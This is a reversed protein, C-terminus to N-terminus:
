WARWRERSIFLGHRGTTRCTVGPRASTCSFDGHIWTSGYALTRYVPHEYGPYLIGGSCTISGKLGPHLEFGHWDLKSSSICSRQLAGAYRARQIMCHLMPHNGPGAVYIYVCSINGSPTRIGPIVVTRAQVTVYASVGLNGGGCRATVVYRGSQLDARIRTRVAFSGHRGIPGSVAGKGYAHGRFAASILTVQDRSSCPSSRASVAVIGGPAVTAPQVVMHVSEPLAVATGALVLVAAVLAGVGKV